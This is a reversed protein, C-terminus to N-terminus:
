RCGRVRGWTVTTRLGAAVVVDPTGRTCTTARAEGGTPARRLGYGWSGGSAVLATRASRSTTSRADPAARAERVSSSASRTHRRGTRSPFSLLPTADGARESARPKRHTAGGPKPEAQRRPPHRVGGGGDQYRSGVGPSRARRPAGYWSGGARKSQSSSLGPLSPLTLPRSPLLPTPYSTPRGSGRFRSLGLSPYAHLLGGFRPDLRGGPTALPVSRADRLTGTTGASGECM